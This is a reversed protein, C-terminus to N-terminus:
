QKCYTFQKQSLTQPKHQIAQNKQKNPQNKKKGQHFILLRYKLETQIETFKSKQNTLFNGLSFKTHLQTPPVTSVWLLFVCYRCPLSEAQLLYKMQYNGSPQQKKLIAVTLGQPVTSAPPFPLFSPPRFIALQKNLM